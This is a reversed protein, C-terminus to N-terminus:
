PLCRLNRPATLSDQGRLAASFSSVPLSQGEASWSPPSWTRSRSGSRSSSPSKMRAGDRGRWLGPPLRAPGGGVIRRARSRNRRRIGGGGRTTFGGLDAVEGSCRRGTAGTRAAPESLMSTPARQYGDGRLLPTDDLQNCTV